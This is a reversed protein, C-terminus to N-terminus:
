TAATSTSPSTNGCSVPSVGCVSLNPIDGAPVYPLLLHPTLEDMCTVEFPCTSRYCSICDRDSHLVRNTGYLDLEWPSTPGVLCVASTGVACAMHYGFSDPTLIWDCAAVLAAFDHVSNYTGGDIFRPDAELVARNIDVEEPGGVLVVATGPEASSVMRRLVSYYDTRWRKEQWRSSAGTNFCAWRDAWPAQNRLFLAARDRAQPSVNFCPRAVPLPLDCIAYLWEGYTRRNERKARDDLGLRLWGDAADNLPTIGGRRDAIFGRKTQSNALQMIAGSLSDADPGFALDFEETLLFELYNSEVTLIRDIWSNERLLAVANARTVWTIHSRPYVRKIPCLCTTTRLVDGMAGLKVILIREETPTYQECSDCRM